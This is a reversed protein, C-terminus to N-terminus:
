RPSKGQRQRLSKGQFENGPEVNGAYKALLPDREYAHRDPHPVNPSIDTSFRSLIPLLVDARRTIQMHTTSLQAGPIVQQM